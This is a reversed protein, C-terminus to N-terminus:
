RSRRRKKKYKRKRKRRGLLYGGGIAGALLALMAPDIGGGGFGGSISLSPATSSPAYAFSPSPTMVSSQFDVDPFKEPLGKIEPVDFTIPPIMPQRINQALNIAQKSVKEGAGLAFGFGTSIPNLIFSGLLPFNPLWKIPQGSAVSRGVQFTEFGIGLGLARGRLRGMFGRLGGGALPNGLARQALNRIGAGARSALSVAGSSAVGIPSVLSVVDPRSARPPAVFDRVRQVVGSIDERTISPVRRINSLINQVPNPM